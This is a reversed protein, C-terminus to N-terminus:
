LVSSVGRPPEAISGSNVCIRNLTLSKPDCSSAPLNVCVCVCVCVRARARARAGQYFPFGSIVRSSLLSTDM